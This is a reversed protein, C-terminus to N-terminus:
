ARKCMEYLLRLIENIYKLQGKDFKKLIKTTTDKDEKNAGLLIYDCSCSLVKAIKLLTEASLGKKGNEIEYLFKISIEAKAAMEERTLKREERLEKIRNGIEERSMKSDGKSSKSM